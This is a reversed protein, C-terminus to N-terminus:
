VWSNLEPILERLLDPDVWADRDILVLAADRNLRDLSYFRRIPRNNNWAYNIVSLAADSAGCDARILDALRLIAEHTNM